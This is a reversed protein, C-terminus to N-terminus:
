VHKVAMDYMGNLESDSHWAAHFGANATAQVDTGM